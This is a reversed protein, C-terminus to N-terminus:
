ARLNEAATMFKNSFKSWKQYNPYTEFDFIHAMSDWGLVLGIERHIATMLWISHIPHTRGCVVSTWLVVLFELSLEGVPYLYSKRSPILIRSLLLRVSPRPPHDPNEPASSLFSLRTLSNLSRAREHPLIIAGFTAAGRLKFVIGETGQGSCPVLIVSRCDFIYLHRIIKIKM